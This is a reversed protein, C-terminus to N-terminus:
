YPQATSYLTATTWTTVCESWHNFPRQNWEWNSCYAHWLTRSCQEEPISSICLNFKAAHTLFLPIRRRIFHCHEIRGTNLPCFLVFSTPFLAVAIDIRHCVSTVAIKARFLQVEIHGCSVPFHFDLTWLTPFFFRSLFQVQLVLSFWKLMKPGNKMTDGSHNLNWRIQQFIPMHSTSTSGKLRHNSLHHRSPNSKSQCTPIPILDM